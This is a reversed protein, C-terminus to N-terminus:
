RREGKIKRLFATAALFFADPEDFWPDHGTGPILLYTEATLVTSLERSGSGQATPRDGDVVLVPETIRRLQSLPPGGDLSAFGVARARGCTAGFRLAIGAPFAPDAAATASDLDPSSASLQQLSLKYGTPWPAVGSLILAATEDPHLEGHLLALWAGWSSGALVVPGQRRYNVVLSDLDAVDQEWTGPGLAASKGCGRQDYYVVRAVAALRDWEPRLYNHRLGPGGHIVIVTVPGDGISYHYLQALLGSDQQATANVQPLSVIVITVAWQITRWSVLKM